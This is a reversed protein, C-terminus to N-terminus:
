AKVQQARHIAIVMRAVTRWEDRAAQEEDHLPEFVRSGVAEAIAAAVEEVEIQTVDTAM